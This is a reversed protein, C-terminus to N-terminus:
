RWKWKGKETISIPPAHDGAIHTAAWDRGMIHRRHESEYAYSPAAEEAPPAGTVVRLQPETKIRLVKSM